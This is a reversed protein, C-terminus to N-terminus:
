INLKQLWFRPLGLKQTYEQSKQESPESKLQLTNAALLTALM